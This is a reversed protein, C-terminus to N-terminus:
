LEYRETLDIGLESAKHVMMAINKWPNVHVEKHCAHCLMIGNRISQSLEPFRAVPLIHHLELQKFDFVQGCHPCRHGQREYLKRKNEVLHDVVFGSFIIDRKTRKKMRVNSIYLYLGFLKMRYAWGMRYQCENALGNKWDKEM